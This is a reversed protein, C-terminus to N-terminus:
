KLKVNICTLSTLKSRRIAPAQFVKDQQHPMPVKEEYVLYVLIVVDSSCHRTNSFTTVLDMINAEIKPNDEKFPQLEAGLPAIKIPFIVNLLALHKAFCVSSAPTRFM